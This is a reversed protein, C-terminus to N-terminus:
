DTIVRYGGAPRHIADYLARHATGAAAQEDTIKVAIKGRPQQGGRTVAHIPSFRVEYGGGFVPTLLGAEEYYNVKGPASNLTWAWGDHGIEGAATDAIKIYTKTM